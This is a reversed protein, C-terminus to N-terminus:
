GIICGGGDGELRGCDDLLVFDYLVDMDVMSDSFLQSVSSSGLVGVVILGLRKIRGELIMTEGVLVPRRRGVGMVRDDEGKVSDDM